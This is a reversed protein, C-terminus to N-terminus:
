RFARSAAAYMPDTMASARLMENGVQAVDLRISVAARHICGRRTPQRRDAGAQGLNTEAGDAALCKRPAANGDGDRRVRLKCRAQNGRGQLRGAVRSRKRSIAAANKT